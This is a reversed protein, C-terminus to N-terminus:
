KLDFLAPQPDDPNITMKLPTTKPNSYRGMLRDTEHSEDGGNSVGRWIVTVRYDGAPIGDNPGYTSLKFLGGEGTTAAPRLKRMKESPNKPHFVVFAGEAPQGRYLVTGEVTNLPLRDSRGCGGLITALM